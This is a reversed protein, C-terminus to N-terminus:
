ASCITKIQSVEKASMDACAKACVGAATRFKLIVNNSIDVDGTVNIKLLWLNISFKRVQIDIATKIKAGLKANVMESVKTTAKATLKVADKVINKAQLKICAADHGSCRKTIIAAINMRLNSQFHTNIEGDIENKVAAKISSHLVSSLRTGLGFDVNILGSIQIRLNTEIETTLSADAYVNAYTKLVIDAHDKVLLDLTADFAASTAPPKVARVELGTDSAVVEGAYVTSFLLVTMATFLFLLTTSKM